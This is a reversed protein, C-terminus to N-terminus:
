PKLSERMKNIADVASEYRQPNFVWEFLGPAIKLLVPALLSAEMFEMVKPLPLLSLVWMVVLTIVAGKLFGFLIGGWTNLKGLVPVENLSKFLSSLLKVTILTLFFLIVYGLLNQLAAVVDPIVGKLTGVILNSAGQGEAEAVVAKTAFKELNLFGALWRGVTEGYRSAIFFAVLVGAFDLVQSVFGRKWGRIICFALFALILFDLINM